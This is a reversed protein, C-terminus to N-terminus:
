SESEKKSERVPYLTTRCNRCIEVIRVSIAGTMGGGGETPFTSFARTGTDTQRCPVLDRKQAQNDKDSNHENTQLFDRERTSEERMYKNMPSTNNQRKEM